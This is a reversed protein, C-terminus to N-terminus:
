PSAAAHALVFRAWGRLGRSPRPGEHPAMWLRTPVSFGTKRRSLISAPLPKRLSKALDRKSLNGNAVILPVLEQLLRWDVLPVRIELSHAMGAWDADRLLQNRMYCTLELASVKLRDSTLPAVTRELHALPKLESWGQQVLDAGLINPLEWPMFLGRRLLYAGGFSRGYEFLGAYKPSTSRALLPGAVVRFGRDWLETGPLHRLLRVLRPVQRFSPYGAFVEDGGIGSLAVKLGLRAAAYSVLYSNVGDLSPQDMHGLLRDREANFESPGIRVTSHAAGYHKAVTEALPAEDAETGKYEDFALTVTRLRGGLQAAFGALTTSDIGSSLFVGVDVDAVLHHEV